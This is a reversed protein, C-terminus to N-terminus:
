KLIKKGNVINIGKQMKSLRQGALNYINESKLLSDSLTEEIGDANDELDLAFSKVGAVKAAPIYARNAGLSTHTGALFFGAKKEGEVDVVNLIYDKEEITTATTVGVLINDTVDDAAGSLAPVDVTKEGDCVLLVGSNAPVKTIPKFTLKSGEATGYYATIGTGTFDLANESCYTAYGASTVRVSEPPTAEGDKEYLSIPNQSASSYCAFLTNSNNYRMVNRTNTGQAVISAVGDSFTIKWRANDDVTKETKLNNSSSSAAYLYGEEKADYITYNGKADPGYIVLEQVDTSNVTATNDTIEVDVADRNNTKQTGMAKSSETNVIIYHKGSTITSALTWTTPEFPAVYAAQNITVLESYVDNAEDDLAYVKMYATRSAGTNASIMYYVNNEDNIEAEFWDYTAANGDADCLIVDANVEAINKYTVTITGDAEDATAEITSPSVVIAPTTDGPRDLSVLQNNTDFEYTDNYKKLNGYVVVVDGVRIDDESSFNEGSYSKGRYAQLQDSDTKGDVSINYSINGYQSNYPTVIESVIGTAYVGTVGKGADIAARAEAVTYPRSESGPGKSDVVTITKTGAAEAYDSNAAYTATFTVDGTTLITVAGAADITAVEPNSSSWTVTAGDVAADNYKVSATLTGAAVNTEGDLDLTLDGSVTVTPEALNKTATVSAVMSEDLGKTAKAYITKTETITLAETYETWNENDYSYYITAGDTECTITARTSFLFPNAALEIVPREVAAAVPVSWYYSTSGSCVPLIMTKYYGNNDWNSLAYGGISTGSLLMGRTNVNSGSMGAMKVYVDDVVTFSWTYSTETGYAVNTGSSGGNSHYIYKSGDSLTYGNTAAAITWTFGNANEPTVYKVGDAESVTVYEATIKGNNVTPNTPLAYYKGSGDIKDFVIVFDGTDGAVFPSPAVGGETRTYVPYLTVNETPYYTVDTTIITPASTTEETVNTTSWGAFTYSGVNGRSPLTVGAGPSIETMPNETDDSLTVTYTPLAEFNITVTTNASPTVTFENDNQVVTASNDPSVTYAPNAYTYGTEPTATIVTGSLSVTGWSVNNSQATIEYAPVPASEEYTYSINYCKVGKSINTVTVTLVKGTQSSTSSVTVDNSANLSGTGVATDGVKLSVNGATGSFGGFKASFATVNVDESLTTTFTISTAPKSSSGVQAYSPNKTFSTTGVTTITWSNGQSDIGTISAGNVNTSGTGSGFKITATTEGWAFNGGGIITFLLCLLLRNPHTQFIQKM